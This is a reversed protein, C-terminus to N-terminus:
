WSGHLGGIFVACCILGVLLASGMCAVNDVLRSSLAGLRFLNNEIALALAKHGAFTGVIPDM